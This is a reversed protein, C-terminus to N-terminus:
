RNDWRIHLYEFRDEVEFGRQRYYTIVAPWHGWPLWSDRTHHILYVSSGTRAAKCIGRNIRPVYLPLSAMADALLRAKHERLVRRGDEATIQLENITPTLGIDPIHAVAALEHEMIQRKRKFWM